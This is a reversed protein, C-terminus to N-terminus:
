MNVGYVIHASQGASFTVTPALLDHFALIKKNTNYVDILFLCTESAVGPGGCAISAMTVFRGSGSSYTAESPTLVGSEPATAFPSGINYDSRDPPTTSQGIQLYCGGWPYHNYAFSQGYMVALNYTTGTSDKVSANRDATACGSFWASIFKGFNDTVLDNPKNTGFDVIKGKKDTIYCLVTEALINRKGKPSNILKAELCNSIIKQDLSSGLIENQWNKGLFDVDTM